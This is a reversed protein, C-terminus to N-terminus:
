SFRYTSGDPLLMSGGERIHETIEVSKLSSLAFPLLDVFLKARDKAPLTDFDIQVQDFNNSLFDSIRERLASTTKNVAGRPRGNKNGSIGSQFKM